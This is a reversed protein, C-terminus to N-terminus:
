QNEKNSYLQKEANISTQIATLSSGLGKILKEFHQLLADPEICREEVQARVKREESGKFEGEKRWEVALAIKYFKVAFHYNYSLFNTYHAYQYLMAKLKGFNDEPETDCFAEIDQFRPAVKQLFAIYDAQTKPDKFAYM